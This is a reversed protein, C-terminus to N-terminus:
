AFPNPAIGGHLDKQISRNQQGSGFNEASFANSLGRASRTGMLPNPQTAPTPKFCPTEPKQWIEQFTNPEVRFLGQENLLKGQQILHRISHLFDRYDVTDVADKGYVELLHAWIDKRYTGENNNKILTAESILKLYITVKEQFLRHEKDARNNAVNVAHQSSSLM